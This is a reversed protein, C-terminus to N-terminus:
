RHLAPSVHAAPAVGGPRVTSAQATSAVTGLTVLALAATALAVHQGMRRTPASAPLLRSFLHAHRQGSDAYAAFVPAGEPSLSFNTPPLATTSPLQQLRELLGGPLAPAPAARLTWVAARQEAVSYACEPCEALHRTARNQAGTSLRGDAFAVVAEDSLHQVSLSM